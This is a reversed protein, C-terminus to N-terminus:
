VRMVTLCNDISEHVFGVGVWVVVGLFSVFLFSLISM